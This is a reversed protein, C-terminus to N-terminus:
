AAFKFLGSAATVRASLPAVSETVVTQVLDFMKRSEVVLSDVHSTHLGAVVRPLEAPTKVALVSQVTTQAQSVTQNVLAMSADALTKAGTVVASGSQVLADVNGKTFAVVADFNQNFM